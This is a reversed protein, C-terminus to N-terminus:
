LQALYPGAGGWCRCGLYRLDVEVEGLGELSELARRDVCSLSNGLLGLKALGRLGPLPGSVAVLQNHGLELSTLHACGEM